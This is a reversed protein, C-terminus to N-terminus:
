LPYQQQHQQQQQQNLHDQNEMENTRTIKEIDSGPQM